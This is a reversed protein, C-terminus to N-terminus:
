DNNEDSEGKPQLRKLLEHKVDHMAHRYHHNRSENWEQSKVDEVLREIEERPVSNEKLSKVEDQLAKFENYAKIWTKEIHWSDIIDNRKRIEQGDMTVQNRLMKLNNCDSILKELDSM